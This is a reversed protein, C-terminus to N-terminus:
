HDRAGRGVRSRRGAHRREAGRRCAAGAIDPSLRKRLLSSAVPPLVRPHLPVVSAPRGLVVRGRPLREVLALTLRDLTPRSGAAPASGRCRSRSLSGSGAGARCRRRRRGSCPPAPARAPEDAQYPAQRRGRAAAATRSRRRRGRTRWCRRSAGQCPRQVRPTRRRPTAPPGRARRGRATRAAPRFRSAHSSRRSSSPETCRTKL